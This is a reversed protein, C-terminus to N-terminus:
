SNQIDNIHGKYTLLKKSWDRALEALVNFRTVNTENRTGKAAEDLIRELEGDMRRAIDGLIEIGFESTMAQAFTANKNLWKIVRKGSPGHRQEYRLLAKESLEEPSSM